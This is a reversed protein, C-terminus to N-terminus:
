KIQRISENVRYRAYTSIADLFHDLQQKDFTSKILYCGEGTIKHFEIVAEFESVLREFRIFENSNMFVTIYQQNEELIQITYKKITGNDELQQVRAGNAQGTLFVREGIEKWSLRSNEKLMKM